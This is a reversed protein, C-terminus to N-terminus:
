PFTKPLLLGSFLLNMRLTEGQEDRHALELSEVKLALPDTELAFLFRAISELSGTANARCELTFHGEEHERWTPKIGHFAIRSEEAWRFVAALVDNESKARSESLAEHMMEDWRARMAQDRDILAQGREVKLRLDQISGSRERWLNTLPSVVLRDGLLIGISIAALLLLQKERRMKNM